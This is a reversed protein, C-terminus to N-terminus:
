RAAAAHCLGYALCRAEWPLANASDVHLRLRPIQPIAAFRFARRCNLSVVGASPSIASPDNQSAARSRRDPVADPQLALVNRKMVSNLKSWEASIFLLHAINVLLTAQSRPIGIMARNPGTNKAESIKKSLLTAEIDGASASGGESEPVESMGERM